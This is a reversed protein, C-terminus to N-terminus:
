AKGEEDESVQVELEEDEVVGDMGLRNRAKPAKKGVNEFSEWSWGYRKSLQSGLEYAQNRTFGQGKKRHPYHFQFPVNGISAPPYYKEENKDYAFGISRLAKGPAEKDCEGPQGGGVRADVNPMGGLCFMLTKYHEETIPIELPFPIM